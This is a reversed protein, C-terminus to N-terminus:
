QLLSCSNCPYVDERIAMQSRLYKFSVDNYIALISSTKVNGISYKGTADMCCHPVVGDCFINIDFWANCPLEHPISSQKEPITGLWSARNKVWTVFDKGPTFDGFLNACEEAYITDGDSLDSVRSLVVPGEFFRFKQKEMMLEKLNEVTRSFDMKMTAEYEKKNAANFSVNFSQINKVQVIEEFFNQSVVNLNSFISIAANPLRDNIAKLRVFIKRDMFPENVLNPFINIPFQPPIEELDCIVKEFLADDMEDNKRDLEEHPCFTCDGNCRGVTEIGINHPYDMHSTQKRSFEKVYQSASVDRLRQKIKELYLKATKHSPVLDLTRNFNTAAAKLRRLGFYIIGELCISDPQNPNIALVADIMKRAEPLNNEQILSFAVELTQGVDLTKKTM